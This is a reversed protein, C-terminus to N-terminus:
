GSKIEYGHIFDPRLLGEGGGEGGEREGLVKSQLVHVHLSDWRASAVELICEISSIQLSISKYLNSM